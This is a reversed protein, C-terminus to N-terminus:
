IESLSLIQVGLEKAKKIKTTNAMKDKVILISTNKNV